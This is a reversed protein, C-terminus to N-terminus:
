GRDTSVVFRMTTGAGPRSEASIEGDHAEVLGKAIALGLGAGGSDAAKVFRDFVHPLAEPDIGPGTDRVTFAVRGNKGPEASVEVSGGSPTHRLANVLLNALVEGIRVPDVDVDPLGPTVRGDLRVGASDAQSRFAKVADSVIDGPQVSELHLPLAGAEALSLTRLDDLLRSMVRIEELLAELHPHDDQYIGDLMGEVEGQIVSLPTRLEHTVDALLNRRQEESGRLREAMANFSRALRRLEGPGRERLRVSYDGAAVRDAADMVDGVPAAMRRVLRMGLVLLTFLLVLGLVAAPVVLGRRDGLGLTGSLLAVALGSALFVLGFFLALFLIVRRRFRRGM